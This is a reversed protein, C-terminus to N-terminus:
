DIYGTDYVSMITSTVAIIPISIILNKVTLSRGGEWGECGDKERGEKGELEMAGSRFGALRDTPAWWCLRFALHKITCKSSFIMNPSAFDVISWKNTDCSSNQISM